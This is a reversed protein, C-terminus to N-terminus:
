TPASRPETDTSSAPGDAFRQDFEPGLALLLFSQNEPPLGTGKGLHGKSTGNIVSFNSRLIVLQSLQSTRSVTACLNLTPKRGILFFPSIPPHM